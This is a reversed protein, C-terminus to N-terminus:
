KNHWPTWLVAAGLDRDGGPGRGLLGLWVKGGWCGVHTRGEGGVWGREVAPSWMRTSGAIHTSLM